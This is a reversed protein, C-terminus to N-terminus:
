EGKIKNKRDKLKNWVEQHRDTFIGQLKLYSILQEIRVADIKNLGALLTINTSNIDNSKMNKLEKIILDRYSEFNRYINTIDEFLDHNQRFKNLLAKIIKESTEQPKNKLDEILKRRITKDTAECINNFIQREDFSLKNKVFSVESISERSLYFYERLDEDYINYPDVLVWNKIKDASWKSFETGKLDTGEKINEYLERLKDAKGDNASQWVYLENFLEKDLEELVMLKSLISLKPNFDQIEAMRKRIYFTNLFRKAQRPNGKLSGSVVDAINEFVMLHEKFQDLSNEKELLENIDDKGKKSLTDLIDHVNIIGGKLILGKGFLDEMLKNAIDPKLFMECVLFLMYNKIDTESLEPLRIPLQIIKEIYDNSVDLKDEDTLRPYKKKIAYTVVREDIAVIFTTGKVSLFLKVAELTELIRDPNCRDLDDIMVILNKIKADELQKEFEERFTRVNEIIIEGVDERLHEEKFKKLTDELNELSEKSKLTDKIKSTIADIAFLPVGTMASMALPIGNKAVTGGLRLWNVRELLSKFGKKMESEIEENDEIAKLLSGMIATKADDYGEFMWANLSIAIVGNDKSENEALKNEILGLLTSKGSGWSGFLGITLPNMRKNNSIEYILEAYPKYALMDIESANDAWMDGGGINSTNIKNEM